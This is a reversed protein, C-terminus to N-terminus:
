EWWSLFHKGMIKFCLESDANEIAQQQESSLKRGFKRMEWYNDDALRKLLEACILTQRAYKDSHVSTGYKRFLESMRRLKFEMIAALFAWDFDRDPWIIPFWLILNKIGFYLDFFWGEIIPYITRRTWRYYRKQFIM